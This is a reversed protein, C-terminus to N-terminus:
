VDGALADEDDDGEAHDAEGDDEQELESGLAQRLAETLEAWTEPRLTLGKRTPKSEGGPIAPVTWVRADVLDIGKFSTRQVRIVERDNKEVEALLQETTHAAM